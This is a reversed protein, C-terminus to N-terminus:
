KHKRVQWFDDENDQERSLPKLRNNPQEQSLPKKARVPNTPVKRQPTVIQQPKLEMSGTFLDPNTLLRNLVGKLDNM